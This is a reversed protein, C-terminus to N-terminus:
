CPPDSISFFFVFLEHYSLREILGHTSKYIHWRTHLYNVM